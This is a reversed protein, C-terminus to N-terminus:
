RSCADRVFHTFLVSPAHQTFLPRGATSAETAEMATAETVATGTVMITGTAEMDTTTAMTITGSTTIVATDTTTGAIVAIGAFSGATGAGRWRGLWNRLALRLRVLVLRLTVELAYRV